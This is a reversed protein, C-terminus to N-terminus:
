AVKVYIDSTNDAFCIFQFKLKDSGPAEKNSYLIEWRIGNELAAFKKVSHPMESNKVYVDVVIDIYMWLMAKDELFIKRISIMTFSLQIANCYVEEFPLAIVDMLMISCKLTDERIVVPVKQKIYFQHDFEVFDHILIKDLCKCIYGTKDEILLVNEVIQVETENYTSGCENRLEAGFGGLFIVYKDQNFIGLQKRNERSIVLQHDDLIFNIM